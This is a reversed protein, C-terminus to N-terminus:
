TSMGEPSSPRRDRAGPGAPGAPGGGPRNAGAPADEAASEREARLVAAEFEDLEDRAAEADTPAWSPPRRHTM